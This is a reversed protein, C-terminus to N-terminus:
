KINLIGMENLKQKGTEENRKKNKKVGEELTLSIRKKYIYIYTYLICLM